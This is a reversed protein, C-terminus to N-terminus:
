DRLLKSFPANFNQISLCGIKWDGKDLDLVMESIYSQYITPIRYSNVIRLGAITM